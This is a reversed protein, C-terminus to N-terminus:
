NKTKIDDELSVTVNDEDFGMKRYKECLAHFENRERVTGGTTMIQVYKSMIRENLLTKSAESNRGLMTEFTKMKIELTGMKSTFEKKIKETNDDLMTEVQGLVKGIFCDLMGKLRKKIPKYFIAFLTSSLTITTVFTKLTDNLNNFWELM